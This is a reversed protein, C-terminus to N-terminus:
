ELDALLAAIRAAGAGTIVSYHDGPAKTVTVTEALDMWLEAQSREEEPEVFHLEVEAPRPLYARAAVLNAETIALRREMEEVDGLGTTRALWELAERRPGSWLGDPPAVPHAPVLRLAERAFTRLVGNGALEAEWDFDAPPTTDIMLVAPASGDAPRTRAAMEYALLGGLSWGAFVVPGSTVGSLERLYGAATEALTGDTRGSSEFACVQWDGGLAAVLEAYCLAAGGVPHALALVPTRTGRRLWNLSAAGRHSRSGAGTVAPQEAEKSETAEAGDPAPREAAGARDLRAAFAGVTPAELLTSMPVRVGTRKRLDSMVRAALLSNGGLAFFNDEVGVASVGLAAAWADAVLREGATGPLAGSVPAGATERVAQEALLARDIKGNGTIPLTDLVLYGSPLMAAPLHREAHARVSAVLEDTAGHRAPGGAAPRLCAVIRRVGGAVVTVAADVDPHVALVADIEGPEVRVGNVKIQDDDRGRLELRGDALLRALDGTRYLRAGPPGFPSPVFRQATLGPRGYYGRAVGAGGLCLEGVVGPPVPRLDGDLVHATTGGIPRGVPLVAPLPGAGITDRTSHVTTETPGYMQVLRAVRERVRSALEAPVAEGGTMATLRPDGPWEALLLMQWLAPTAFFFDPRWTRLFEALAAGDGRRHSESVVLEAGAHLPLLVELVGIDFSVPSAAAMRTGPAIGLEDRTDDLCTALSRHSVGVAKPRGTSGSTYLLYALQDPDVAPFVPIRSPDAPPLLLDVAEPPLDAAPRDTILARAGADRLMGAQRRAPHAPDLPLLACGARAVALLAAPLEGRDDLLVGVPSEPGLGAALLRGALRDADANLEAYTIARGAHRVAVAEPRDRAWAAVADAPLPGGRREPGHGFRSVAERDAATSWRLEAAPRDPEALAAALLVPFRAVMARIAAADFIDEDYGCLVETGDADRLLELVLDFQLSTGHLHFDGVELGPLAPAEADAPRYSFTVQVLPSSAPDRDPRIVEVLRSFPMDKHDFAGLVSDREAEVLERFSTRAGVTGRLVLMNIFFGVLDESGVHDRGSVPAGILLDRQGSSRWLLLRFAALLVIFETSGTQRALERLGADLGAPLRDLAVGGLARRTRPRPRDTPLDVTHPAGALRRTWYDTLEALRADDVDARQLTVFDRHGLTLPTLRPATGTVAARYFEGIETLAIGVSAADIVLHHATMVFVHHGPGLRYLRFRVPPGSRLDFPRLLEARGARRVAEETACEVVAFDPVVAPDAWQRPEGDTSDFVTRLAAHRHTLRACADRLADADLLGRIRWAAPVNSMGLRDTFVERFWLSEQEYSLRYPDDHTTTM